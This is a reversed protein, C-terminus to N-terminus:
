HLIKPTDTRGIQSIVLLLDPDYAQCKQAEIEQKAYKEIEDSNADQVTSDEAIADNPLGSCGESRYGFSFQFLSM